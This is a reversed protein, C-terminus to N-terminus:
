LICCGKKVKAPQVPEPIVSENTLSKYIQQFMEDFGQKTKLSVEFYLYGSEGRFKEEGLLSMIKEKSVKRQDELDVKTGVIVIQCYGQVNVNFREIKTLYTEIGEISEQNTLDFLIMALNSGTYFASTVTQDVDAPPKDYIHMNLTQGKYDVKKFSHQTPPREKSESFRDEIFRSALATKGTDNDGKKLFILTMKQLFLCNKKKSIQIFLKKFNFYVTFIWGELIIKYTKEEEDAM